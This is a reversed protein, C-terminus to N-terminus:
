VGVVPWVEFSGDLGKLDTSRGPGFAVDDRGELVARTVTSVLVEAASAENAIRAAINVHRGFLDGSDDVIVEGTHMGMRVRLPQEGAARVGELRENVEFAAQVAMWASPFTLMFGDGQHKVVSGRHRAVAGEVIANHARLDAYWREDGLATLQATSDEIDSFVITITGQRHERRAEMPDALVSSAVVDITSEARPRFLHAVATQTRGGVLPPGPAPSPVTVVAARCDGFHVEDGEGLVVPEAIRAEGHFTGNTSDLDTVRVGDPCPELRLHVRSIGPDDLLLGDCDRGITLEETVVLRLPRRGNRTIEVVPDQM